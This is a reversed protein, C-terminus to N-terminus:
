TRVENDLQKRDIKGNTTMPFNTVYTFKRPIMYSPLTEKLTKKLASTIQFEKEFSHPKLLVHATLYDCVGKSFHPIVVVNEVLPLLRLQAEIEEIEMRYGNIKVQYDMRGCYFLLDGQQYGLDGTKYAQQKNYTFFREKTLEEQHRYGKSVSPGAIILQGKEGPPVTNCQEDVVVVTTDPKSKGIPVSDYATLVDATVEVSTVAVTTETPGYTNFIRANSFRQHLTTVTEKTLTEGCFLFTHLSPLLTDTFQDDTLCMAAFSPTSVWVNAHSRHLEEFLTRPNAILEKTIGCLTGGTYLCPYLDMVSLDFSFPAQNIFIQQNKIDFDAIIWEVFSMLNTYSIEVGKPKGTSGSTFLIYFNENEKVAYEMPLCQNEYRIFITELEKKTLIEMKRTFTHVMENKPTLLMTANSLEMIHAIRENPITDDIPVYARGSKTIGLFYVLLLPEMHGYVIVPEKNDKLTEELYVALANSRQELQQYTLPDEQVTRFVHRQGDYNSWYSIKEYLNLM